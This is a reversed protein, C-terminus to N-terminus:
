RIQQNNHLRQLDEQSLPAISWDKTLTILKPPYNTGWIPVYYENILSDPYIFAPSLVLTPKNQFLYANWYSEDNWIARYNLKNEDEDIAQSIWEAAKLYNEATGGQFGGAFYFPMFRPKGNESIVQGPRPIYARSKENPEYPPWLSSKLAYMPHQAAVLDGLIEDGIVNAFRMDIDSYYLYDFNKLEEKKQLFLHFRYLTGAPWPSPMAPVLKIDKSEEVYKSSEKAKNFNNEIRAELKSFQEAPITKGLYPNLYVQKINEKAQEWEKADPKIIDSWLYFTVEHGPLFFNRAGEITEKILGWYSPNLCIFLLAVKKKPLDQSKELYEKFQSFAELNEPTYNGGTAGQLFNHIKRKLDADM